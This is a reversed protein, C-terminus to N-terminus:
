NKLSDLKLKFERLERIYGLEIEGSEWKLKFDVETDSGGQKQYLPFLDGEERPKNTHLTATLQYALDENQDCLIYCYM